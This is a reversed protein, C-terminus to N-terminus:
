ARKGDPVRVCAPDADPKPVGADGERGMRQVCLRCHLNGVCVDDGALELVRLRQAARLDDRPHAHRRPLPWQGNWSAVVVHEDMWHLVLAIEPAPTTFVGLGLRRQHDSSAHARPSQDSERYQGGSTPAMSAMEALSAMVFSFGIFTWVYSWILGALGGDVLGQYTATLLVEWTGQLVVTFAITSLPRFNRRLEQAKGMRKMERRDLPTPDDSEDDVNSAPRGRETRIHAHYDWDDGGDDVRDFQKMERADTMVHTKHLENEGNSHVEASTSLVAAM